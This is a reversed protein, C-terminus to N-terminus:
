PPRGWNQGCGSAGRAEEAVPLARNAGLMPGGPSAGGRQWFSDSTHCDTIGWGGRGRDAALGSPGVYTSLPFVLLIRSHANNFCIRSYHKQQNKGSYRTIYLTYEVFIAMESFSHARRFPFATTRCISQRQPYKDFPFSFFIFLILFVNHRSSSTNETINTSGTM